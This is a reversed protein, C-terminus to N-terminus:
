ASRTTSPRARARRRREAAVFRVGPVLPEFAARKAPQGTASLAGLTRGHFRARSRSSAPSAPRRARTSSRRRSRRPARTASSRRRAASASPSCRRSSARRSRGTSTRSTGSGSSSRRRPPSRRRSPLPRARRRRHRRRLRPVRPRGDDWCAVARAASSRSTRARTPRCSGSSGQLHVADRERSWRRRASRPAHRRAARRPGGRAAEARDRGRVRRRRAARRGRRRAIRSAVAGEVLVGPVDTVFLIRDAGLGVALATAAEDANVNLPGVALPTSSRSGGASRAGREVAAPRSPLPEGVLGLEPVRRRRSASRTASSVSRRPASQPPCSPGSPSWRGACSPSRRQIRSAAATSSSARRARASAAGRHDAARRRPRRRGRRRGRSARARTRGLRPAVRGASSSCSAADRRTSRTSGSTTTRSTPRSTRPAGPASGSTSTSRRRGRRRARAERRDARRARVRRTGDFSVTLRDVDVHAFGGNWPASGAAALVRGWNPDRGFAATKVLPSTAIRRAVAEAERTRRRRRLRAIELLM